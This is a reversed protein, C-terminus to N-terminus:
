LGARRDVLYQIVEPKYIFHTNKKGTQRYAKQIFFRLPLEKNPSSSTNYTLQRIRERSYGTLKAVKGATLKNSLRTNNMQQKHTAWRCNDPEYNGNNNPYRDISHKDTPPLGMDELFNYFSERWRDCVKIGRGGYDQWQRTSKRLYCRSLMGYYVNYVKTKTYPNQNIHPKCGCSGSRGNKINNLYYEKENGCRCRCLCLRVFQGLSGTVQVRTFRLITLYGFEKNLYDTEKFKGEGIIYHIIKEEGYKSLYAYHTRCWGRVYSDRNCHTAKCKGYEIHPNYGIYNDGYKRWAQYHTICYGKVKVDNDCNLYKCIIM